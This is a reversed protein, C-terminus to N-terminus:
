TFGFLFIINMPWKRAVKVCCVLACLFFLNLGLVTWLMWRNERAYTNVPDVFWFIAAIGFTVALQIALIIYVKRVFAMRVRKEMRELYKDGYGTEPRAVSVHVAWGCRHRTLSFLAVGM